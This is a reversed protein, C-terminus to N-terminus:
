SHHAITLFSDVQYGLIVIINERLFNAVLSSTAKKMAMAEVWKTFLKTAILIWACGNSPPNIPGIFDLVWNYLPYPAM